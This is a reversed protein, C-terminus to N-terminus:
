GRQSVIYIHIRDTVALGIFSLLLLLDRSPDLEPLDTALGLFASETLYTASVVVPCQQPCLTVKGRKPTQATYSLECNRKESLKTMRPPSVTYKRFVIPFNQFFGPINEYYLSFIKFFIAINGYYLRFFKSFFPINEYCM